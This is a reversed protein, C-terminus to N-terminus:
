TIHCTQRYVVGRNSHLNWPLLFNAKMVVTNEDGLVIGRVYRASLLFKNIERSHGITKLKGPIGEGDEYSACHQCINTSSYTLLHIVSGTM